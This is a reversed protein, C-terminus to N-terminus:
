GLEEWKIMCGLTTSTITEALEVIFLGGGPIVPRTEPTWIRHFPYLISWMHEELVNTEVSQSTNGFEIAADATPFGPDNPSETGAAGGSGSATGRHIIIRNREDTTLSSDIKVEHIKCAVNTAALLEILDQVATQATRNVASTYIRGQSM